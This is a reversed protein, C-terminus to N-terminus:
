GAHDHPSQQRCADLSNRSSEASEEPASVAAGPRIRLRLIGAALIAALERFREEPTLEPETAPM